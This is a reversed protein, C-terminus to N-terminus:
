PRVPSPSWTRGGDTTLFVEAGGNCEPSCLKNTVTVGHSRDVFHLASLEPLGSSPVVNSTFEENGSPPTSGNSRDSLLIISSVGSTLDPPPDQILIEEPAVFTTTLEGTGIGVRGVLKATSVLKWTGGDSREYLLVKSHGVSDTIMVPLLVGDPGREPLGYQVLRGSEEEPETVVGEPPLVEEYPETVVGEEAGTPKPLPVEIEEWSAGGDETRYVKEFEGTGGVIWGEHPSFFVFPGSAPPRPTVERWTKGSDVSRYLRQGTSAVGAEDVLLWWSDGAEAIHVSGISGPGQAEFTSARWTRGDNTTRFFELPVPVENVEQCAVVLGDGSGDFRAALISSSEIGPPTITSWSAGSDTTWALRSSTLAWGKTAGILEAAQIVDGAPSGEADYQPPDQRAQAGGGADHRGILFGVIGLIVIGAVATSWWIRSHDSIM